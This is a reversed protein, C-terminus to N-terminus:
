AAAQVLKFSKQYDPRQFALALVSAVISLASLFFLAIRFDGTMQILWGTISPSLIGALAFFSSVIGQVVGAYRGFLDANLSFIPSFLVFAFGVGLTIWFLDLFLGHSFSIPLFCLGSLLLGFSMVYTRSRRLSGTKRLIRDSLWGGFLLSIASVTWPLIVLFGTSRISVQYNQVLYGPLWMLAFWTTYGFAFYLICSTQFSPNFIIKKWPIKREDKSSHVAGHSAFLYEPHKRFLYVWTFAWVIGFSGLIIFMWKWNFLEILGTVLPGGIISSMSIGFLSLATGRARWEVPLWDSITRLLAPFHVGEAIGIFIRIWFFSWFGQAISLCMTGISWLIASIAWTGVVGFRDVILGGCFTMFIYGIAFASAIMGFEANHIGFEQELQVIVYSISSRDIFNVITILMMSILIQWKFRSLSVKKM